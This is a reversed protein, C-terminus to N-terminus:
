GLLLLPDLLLGGAAGLGVVQVQQAPEMGVLPRTGIHLAADLVVLLGDGAVGGIRHGVRPDCVGVLEQADTETRLWRDLVEGIRLRHGELRELHVLGERLGVGREGVGAPQAVEVPGARFELETARQFELVAVDHCVLPVAFIQGREAAM